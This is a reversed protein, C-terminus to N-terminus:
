RTLWGAFARQLTPLLVFVMLPVAIATLALTRLPLPWDAMLPGGLELLLTITPYIAIWVLLAFRHRPPPGAPRRADARPDRADGGADPGHARHDRADAPSRDQALMPSM